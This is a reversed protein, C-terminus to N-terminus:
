SNKSSSPASHIRIIKLIISKDAVKWPPDASMFNLYGCIDFYMPCVRSVLVLRYEFVYYKVCNDLIERAVLINKLFLDMPILMALPFLTIDFILRRARNSLPASARKPGGPRAASRKDAGLCIGGSALAESGSM